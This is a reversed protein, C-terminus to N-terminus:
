TYPTYCLEVHKTSKLLFLFCIELKYLFVAAVTNGSLITSYLLYVNHDHLTDM